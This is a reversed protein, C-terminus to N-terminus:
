HKEHGNIGLKGAWRSLLGRKPRSPAEPEEVKLAQGFLTGNVPVPKPSAPLPSSAATPSVPVAEIKAAAGEAAQPPPVAPVTVKPPGPAPTKEILHLNEAARNVHRADVSHLEESSALTLSNDCIANIVRPIGKSWKGIQELADPTFPHSQGGAVRWRHKIYEQVEPGSLNRISIRMSVRQKLQWLDPRSLMEDLESQGLLLIQILKEQGIELNGLFRIEELLEYSLKHAEDVILVNLKGKKAGDLLFNQLKWLRQAKSAPIDTLGLDLMMLELFEQPTLTPNLIVSSRVRECPMRELVWALLTTKGSGAMGTLVLFGKRELVASTLGILAEHHQKTVFLFSPDATMSFPKMTLGYSDSYM